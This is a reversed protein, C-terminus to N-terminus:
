SVRRSYDRRLDADAGPPVRGDTNTHLHHRRRRSEPPDTCVLHYLYQPQSPIKGSGFVQGVNRDSRTGEIYADCDDNSLFDASLSNGCTHIDQPFCTEPLRETPKRSERRGAQARPGQHWRAAGGLTTPGSVAAKRGRPITESQRNTPLRFTHSPRAARACVM